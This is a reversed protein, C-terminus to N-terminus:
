YGIVESRIGQGRGPGEAHKGCACSSSQSSPADAPLGHRPYQLMIGSYERTTEAQSADHLPPGFVPRPRINVKRRPTDLSIPLTM